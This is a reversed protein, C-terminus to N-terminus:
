RNLETRRCASSAIFLILEVGITQADASAKSRAAGSCKVCSRSNRETRHCRITHGLRYLPREISIRQGEDLSLLFGSDASGCCSDVPGMTSRPASLTLRVRESRDV